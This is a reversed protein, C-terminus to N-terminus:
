KEKLIDELASGWTAKYCQRYLTLWYAQNKKKERDEEWGAITQMLNFAVMERSSQEVQIPGSIKMSDPM